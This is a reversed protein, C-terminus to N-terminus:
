YSFCVLSQLYWSKLLCAKPSDWAILFSQHSIDAKRKVPGYIRKGLQVPTQRRQYDWISPRCKCLNPKRLKREWWAVRCLNLCATILVSLLTSPFVSHLYIVQWDSTRINPSQSRQWLQSFPLLFYCITSILCLLLPQPSYQANTHLIVIACKYLTVEHRHKSCDASSDTSLYTKFLCIM